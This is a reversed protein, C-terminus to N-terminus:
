QWHYDWSRRELKEFVSVFDEVMISNVQRVAFQSNKTSKIIEKWFTFTARKARLKTFYSKKRRNEVVTFPMSSQM